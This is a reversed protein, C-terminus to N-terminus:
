VKNKTLSPIKSLSKAKTAKSYIFQKLNIENSKFTNHNIKNLLDIPIPNKFTNGIPNNSKNEKHISSLLNQINSNSNKNFIGSSSVSIGPQIDSTKARHSNLQKYISSKSMNNINLMSDNQRRQTRSIININLNNNSNEVLKIYYITSEKDIRAKFNIIEQIKMDSNKILKIEKRDIFSSASNNRNLSRKEEKKLAVILM